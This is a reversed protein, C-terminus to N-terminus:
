TLIPENESGLLIKNFEELPLFSGVFIMRFLDFRMKEMKSM